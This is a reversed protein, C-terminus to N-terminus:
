KERSSQLYAARPSGASASQSSCASSRAQLPRRTGKRGGFMVREAGITLPQKTVTGAVQASAARAAPEMRQRGQLQRAKAAQLRWTHRPGRGSGRRPASVRAQMPPGAAPPAARAHRHRARHKRRPQGRLDPERQRARAHCAGAVCQAAQRPTGGKVRVGCPQAAPGPHRAGACCARKLIVGRAGQRHCGWWLAQPTRIDLTRRLM